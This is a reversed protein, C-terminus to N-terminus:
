TSDLGWPAPLRMLRERGGPMRVAVEDQGEANPEIAVLMAEWAPLTSALPQEPAIVLVRGEGRGIFSLLSDALLQRRQGTFLNWTGDLVVLRESSVEPERAASIFALIALLGEHAREAMDTPHGCIVTMGGVPFELSSRERVAAPRGTGAFLPPLEIGVSRAWEVNESFTGGMPCGQGAVAQSRALEIHERLQAPSQTRLSDIESWLWGALLDSDLDFPNVGPWPADGLESRLPRADLRREQISLWALPRTARESGVWLVTGGMRFVDAALVSAVRNRTGQMGGVWVPSIHSAIDTLNKWSLMEYNPMTTPDLASAGGPSAALEITEGRCSAPSRVRVLLGRGHPM